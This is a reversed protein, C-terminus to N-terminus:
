YHEVEALHSHNQVKGEELVQGVLLLLFSHCFLDLFSIINFTILLLRHIKNKRFKTNIRSNFFSLFLPAVDVVSKKRLKKQKNCM